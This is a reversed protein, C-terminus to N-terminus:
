ELGRKEFCSTSRAGGRVHRHEVRSDISQRDHDHGAQLQQAVYGVLSFIKDISGVFFFDKQCFCDVLCVQEKERVVKMIPPPPPPPPPTGPPAPPPPPPPPRSFLYNKTKQQQSSCFFFFFGFCVTQQV